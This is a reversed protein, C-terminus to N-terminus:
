VGGASRRPSRQRRRAPQRSRLLSAEAGNPVQVALCKRGFVEVLADLTNEYSVNERDMKNVFVARPLELEDAMQWMQLTGVEVGSTADVVIIASEAVRIASNVEGRYDAYGPTDVVNIKRDKWPCPLVATQVSTTRKQEEPEYDSATNGDDTKGLRNIAGSAFLMAEALMTKGAGGHSLLVVNRLDQTDVKAM